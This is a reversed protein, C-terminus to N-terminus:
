STNCLRGLAVCTRWCSVGCLIRCLNCTLTGCSGCSSTLHMAPKVCPIHVVSTCHPASTTFWMHLLLTVQLNSTLACYHPDAGVHNHEAVQLPSLVEVTNRTHYRSTVSKPNVLGLM